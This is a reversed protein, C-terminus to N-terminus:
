KGGKAERARAAKLSLARYTEALDGDLAVRLPQSAFLARANKRRLKSLFDLSREFNGGCLWIAPVIYDESPTHDFPRQCDYEPLLERFLVVFRECPPGAKRKCADRERVLDDCRKPAPCRRNFEKMAPPASKGFAGLGLPFLFLTFFLTRYRRRRM